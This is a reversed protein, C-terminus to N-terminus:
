QPWRISEFLPRMKAADPPDVQALWALRGALHARFDPVNTRNQTEPGLRVCNVLIAEFRERERRPWRPRENVVLGGARQRVSRKQIRTKRENVVFGEDIAITMIGVVLADAARSLTADGSFVLDDAYRAYTAGMKRALAELRVDLGYAVLNALAPSTPAGQPLHPVALRARHEFGLTASADHPVAHTTLATLMRAVAEPYGIARFVADVRRASVSQFFSALDVRVVVDRGAHLRAFDIVSKGPRFGIACAHPPVHVLIRDLIERQVTKLRRKPIEIVREGGDPKPLIRYRYHRM